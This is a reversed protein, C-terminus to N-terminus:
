LAAFPAAKGRREVAADTIGREAVETREAAPGGSGGPRRIGTREVEQRTVAAIAVEVAGGQIAALQPVQRRAQDALDRREGEVGAALLDRGYDPGSQFRAVDVHRDDRV